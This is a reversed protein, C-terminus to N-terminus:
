KTLDLNTKINIQISWGMRIYRILSTFLFFVYYMTILNKRDLYYRLKAIIGVSRALKKQLHQIQPKWDLKNDVIVGLYKASIRQELIIGRAAVNFNSIDLNLNQTKPKILM